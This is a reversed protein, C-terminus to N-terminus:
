ITKVMIWGGKHDVGRKQFGLRDYLTSKEPHTALIVTAGEPNQASIEGLCFEILNQGLGRNRKDARVNVCSIGWMPALTFFEHSYASTGIIDGDEVAVIFTPRRYDSSFMCDVYSHTLSKYQEGAHLLLFDKLAESESPLAPRILISM